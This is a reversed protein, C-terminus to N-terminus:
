NMLFNFYEDPLDDFVANESGCKTCKLNPIEFNAAKIAEAKFCGVLEAGCDECVFPVYLSEVEGGCTFNSILNVQEVIATSCEVFKLKAGKKVRGEFYKIWNKVGVSNIRTVGKTNLVVLGTPEGILDEFHANEEVAGSMIVTLIGDKEDKVVNLM